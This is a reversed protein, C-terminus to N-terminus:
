TSEARAPALPLIVQVTTGTRGDSSMILNGDHAEIISRSISLGMGLGKPKTTFFPQFLKEIQGPDVGVGSDRVTLTIQRNESLNSQVLIERRREAIDEMADISNMILNIIVQQLQTRDAMVTAGYATLEQRLAVDHDDLEHRVLAVADKVVENIDIPAMQPSSNKALARIKAIIMSARNADSIM